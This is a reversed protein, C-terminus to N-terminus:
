KQGLEQKAKEEEEMEKEEARVVGRSIDRVFKEAYWGPLVAFVAMLFGHGWYAAVDRKGTGAFGLSARAMRRSTPQTLGPSFGAKMTRETATPGVVIAHCDVDHGADELEVALSRSWSVNFAKSGSYVAIFPSPVNAAGSSINLILAPQSEILLPLAQRTLQTPFRLNMDIWVDINAPEQQSFTKFSPKPGAPGGVNNILIKLNLDKFESLATQLRATDSAAEIADLVLIKFKRNPYQTQLKASVTQLKTENRGHLIVNFGQSALEEAFGLGIGDSAGTVLAWPSGLGDKYKQLNYPRLFHYYTFNALRYLQYTAWLSGITALPKTYQRPLHMNTTLHQLDPLKLSRLTDM